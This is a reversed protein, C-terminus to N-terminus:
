SLVVIVAHHHRSFHSINDLGTLTAVCSTRLAHPLSSCFTHTDIVIVPFVTVIVVIRTFIKPINVGSVVDITVKRLVCHFELEIWRQLSCSLPSGRHLVPVRSLISLYRLYGGLVQEYIRPVKAGVKYSALTELFRLIMTIKSNM